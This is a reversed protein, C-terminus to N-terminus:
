TKTLRRVARLAFAAQSAQEAQSFLEGQSRSRGSKSGGDRKFRLICVAKSCQEFATKQIDWVCLAIAEVCIHLYVHGVIGCM